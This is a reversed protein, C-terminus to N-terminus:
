ASKRSRLEAIFERLHIRDFITRGFNLERRGLVLIEAHLRNDSKVKAKAKAKAVITKDDM